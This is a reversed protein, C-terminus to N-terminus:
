APVLHTPHNHQQQQNAHMNNDNNTSKHLCPHRVPLTLIADSSERRKKKSVTSYGLVLRGHYISQPFRRRIGGVLGLARRKHERDVFFAHHIAPAIGRGLCIMSFGIRGGVLIRRGQFGQQPVQVNGIPRSTGLQQLPDFIMQIADLILLLETKSPDSDTDVVFALTTVLSFDHSRMLCKRTTGSNRWDKTIVSEIRIPSTSDAIGSIAKTSWYSSVRLSLSMFKTEYLNHNRRNNSRKDVNRATVLISMSSSARDRRM